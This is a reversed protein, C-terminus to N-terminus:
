DKLMGRGKGDFNRQPPGLILVSITTRMTLCHKTTRSSRTYPPRSISNRSATTRSANNFSMFNWSESHLNIPPLGVAQAEVHKAGRGANIRAAFDAAEDLKGSKYLAYAYELSAKKILDEGGEELVRLSDEYRDLKLLAVVKAHQAQIDNRSKRLAANCLELVEEPDGITSRRLLTSLTQVAGTAM